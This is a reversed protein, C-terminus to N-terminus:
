PGLALAILLAVGFLLVTAYMQVDGNQLKRLLGGVSSCLKAAGHVLGGDIIRRDGIQYCFRALASLPRVFLFGYLEDFYWKNTLFKHWWSEVPAHPLQATPVKYMKRAVVWGIVAIAVSAGM